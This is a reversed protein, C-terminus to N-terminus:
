SARLIMDLHCNKPQTVEANMRVIREETDTQVTNNMPYTPANFVEEHWCNRPSIRSEPRFVNSAIRVLVGPSTM